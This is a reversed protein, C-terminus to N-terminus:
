QQNDGSQLGLNVRVYVKASLKLLSSQRITDPSPSETRGLIDVLGNLIALSVQSVFEASSIRNRSFGLVGEGNSIIRVSVHQCRKVGLTRGEELM